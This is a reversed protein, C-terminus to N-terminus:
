TRRPIDSKPFMAAPTVDSETDCTSGVERCYRKWEQRADELGPLKCKKNIAIGLTGIWVAAESATASATTRLRDITKFIEGAEQLNGRECARIFNWIWGHLEPRVEFYHM